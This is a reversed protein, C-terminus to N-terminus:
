ITAYGRTSGERQEPESHDIELAAVPLYVQVTTGNGLESSIWVHGGHQKVIGYVMALGLGIGQGFPKSTFFPQFVRSLTESDMGSGNDSVSLLVYPGPVVDDGPHAQVDVETLRVGAVGITVQGGVALADRANTALQTLIQEIGAPDVRVLPDVATAEVVLSKDAGLLHRLKPELGDVVQALRVNRRVIPLQRSFALLQQSIGAARAAAAIMSEVDAAQPHALGLARLVFQGFGLVVAMQNNVEHAVGGALTAVSELQEAQRLRAELRRRDTIDRIIASIAVLEGPPEIHPTLGLSVDIRTGDQCVRVTELQVLRGSRVQEVAREFEEVRDPPVILERVPVGMAERVSYGFLREAGANWTQVTGEPTIVIIADASAEVVAALQQARRRAAILEQEYTRRETADVITTQIAQPQGSGDRHQVSNVLVPLLRGDACVLQLAMERVFGQMRLLPDYHTEYFVKGAVPLFDRLRKGVLSERAYGTWELL